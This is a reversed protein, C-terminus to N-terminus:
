LKRYWDPDMYRLANEGYSMTREESIQFTSKEGFIASFVITHETGNKDIQLIRALNKNQNYELSHHCAPCLLQVKNGPEIQLNNSIYATFDGLQDSLLIVGKGSNECQASLVIHGNLNLQAQCYPCIFTKM